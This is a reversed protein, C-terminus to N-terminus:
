PMQKNTGLRQRPCWITVRSKEPSAGVKRLADTQQHRIETLFVPHNGLRERPIRCGKEPCKKRFFGPHHCTSPLRLHRYEFPLEFLNLTLYVFYELLPRYEFIIPYWFKSVQKGLAEWWASMNNNNRAFCKWLKESLHGAPGCHPTLDAMMFLRLKKMKKFSDANSILDEVDVKDLKICEIANTGSNQSVVRLADEHHWIRSRKSPNEPCEQIVIRRGMEQLLDHMWIKNNEDIYILSNQALIDIGSTAYVNCQDLSKIIVEKDYGNLFCAVDLFITRENAELGDIVIRLIDHVKGHPIEKLRDFARQWETISKGSFFSGMVTLVLPLGKSFSAFCNSLMRYDIKPYMEQFANWSFLELAQDDNLARVEYIDRCLGILTEEHRPILIVRSGLAFNMSEILHRLPELLGEVDDFVLLLRKNHLKSRMLNMVEYIDNGIESDGNSLLDGFLTEQMKLLGEQSSIDKVNALFCSRDFQNAIRYYLARVLTTRGIGRAGSIGVIRVEEVTLQLLSCLAQVQSDLGVPHFALLDKHSCSLRISIQKVIFQIFDAELRNGLSWGTLNGAKRLADRWRWVKNANEQGFGKESQGIRKFPGSQERMERPNVDVFILFVLHGKKEMCELIKVLEELCWPSSAYTQSIVVIASRSQEIAENIAPGIELGRELSLDVFAM